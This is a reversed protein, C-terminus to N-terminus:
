FEYKKLVELGIIKTIAESFKMKVVCIHFKAEYEM